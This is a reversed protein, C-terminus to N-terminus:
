RQAYTLAKEKDAHSSNESVKISIVTSLIPQNRGKCIILCSLEVNQCDGDLCDLLGDTACNSGPPLYPIKFTLFLAIVKVM